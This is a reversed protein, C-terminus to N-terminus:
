LPVDRLFEEITVPPLCRRDRCVYVTTAGGLTKFGDTEKELVSVIAGSPMLLPLNEMAEDGQVVTLLDPPELFDSLAVLFMAYGAPYRKAEGALYSLQRHLTKEMKESPLLTLLRTLNYAMLATGCIPRWSLM